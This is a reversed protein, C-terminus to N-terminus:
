APPEWKMVLFERKSFAALWGTLRSLRQFYRPMETREIVRFGFPEYFTRLAGACMLYLPARTEARHQEMLRRVMERAIGRRQYDPRTAISALERSGDDHAKIQGTGVVDGTAEDVALTFHQWQLGLPNIQAARVLATITNQDAATAARYLVSM